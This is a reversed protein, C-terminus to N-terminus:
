GLDHLGVTGEDTPRGFGTHQGAAFREGCGVGRRGDRDCPAGATVDCRHVAGDRGTGLFEGSEEQEVAVVEVVRDFQPDCIGLAHSPPFISSRGTSLSQCETSAARPM